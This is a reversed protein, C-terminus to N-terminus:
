RTFKFEFVYAYYIKLHFVISFFFVFCNINFIKGFSNCMIYFPQWHIWMKKKEFIFQLYICIGMYCNSCKAFLNKVSLIIYKYIFLIEITQNLWNRKRFNRFYKKKEKLFINLYKMFEIRLISISAFCYDRDKTSWGCCFHLLLM